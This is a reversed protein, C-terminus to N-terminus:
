FTQINAILCDTSFAFECQLFAIDCILCPENIQYLRLHFSLYFVLMLITFYIM